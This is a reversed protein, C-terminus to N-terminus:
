AKTVVQAIAAAAADRCSSFSPFDNFDIIYFDGGSCVIADGGYITIGTARAATSTAKHLAETSFAYGHAAGNYRELGFKSFGHGDATPRTFAFFDTGEVGYFKILDGVIHQSLLCRSGCSLGHLAGRLAAADAIFRVDDASCTSSGECKLWLPFGVEPLVGTQADYVAYPPVPVGARHMLANLAIRDSQLAAPANYISVGDAAMTCLRGIAAKSRAMSVVADHGETPWDAAEDCVDVEHGADRLRAVVAALIAADREENNPSFRKARSLFLLHM